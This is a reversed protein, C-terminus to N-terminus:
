VKTDRDGAEGGIGTNEGVEHFLLGQGRFHGVTARDRKVTNNVLDTVACLGVCLMIALPRVANAQQNRSDVICTRM